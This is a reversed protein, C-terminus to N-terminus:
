EDLSYYSFINFTLNSETLVAGQKPSGDKVEDATVGAATDANTATLDGALLPTM